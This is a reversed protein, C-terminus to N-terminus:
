QWWGLHAEYEEKYTEADSLTLEDLMLSFYNETDHNTYVCLEYLSYNVASEIVKLGVAAHTEFALEDGVFSKKFGSIDGRDFEEIKAELKRPTLIPAPYIEGTNHKTEVFIHNKLASVFIKVDIFDDGNKFACFIEGRSMRQEVYYHERISKPITIDLYGIPRIGGKGHIECARWMDCKALHIRIGDEYEGLIASLDGNGCLAGDPINLSGSRIPRETIIKTYEQTAM